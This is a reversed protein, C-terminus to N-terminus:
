HGYKKLIAAVDAPVTAGHGSIQARLDSRVEKPAARAAGIEQQMQAIVAAYSTQDYATSLLERAHEKDQVTPQGTPSVARSYVNVLANNAAVFQRLKPNNNGSRLAQEAKAFPLFGNRPLAQSAQLALPFLRQAETSALEVNATRTGAAREASLTGKFDAMQAAIDAGNMGQAKAQKSIESRLKVINESGQKGRGLNQMVSTDGALYQQAMMQITSADLLSSSGVPGLPKTQFGTPTQTNRAIPQIHVHDGENIVKVGPLSAQLANHFQAMSMGAPPVLDRAQDTLHYSNPVGGVEANHAPSRAGSTVTAGPVANLALQEIQEGTVGGVPPHTVRRSGVRNGNEDFVSITDVEPKPGAAHTVEGTRKSYIDGQPTNSFEEADKGFVGARKDAPLIAYLAMDAAAKVHAPDGNNLADLMQQDDSPDQGAARDADIRKQLLSKASDTAGNKIFSSVAFLDRETARQTPEDLADHAAQLQKQQDPYKAYLAGFRGTKIADAVDTQYQEAQQQQQQIAGLKLAGMALQQKGAQNQQQDQTVQQQDEYPHPLNGLGGLGSLFDTPTLDM